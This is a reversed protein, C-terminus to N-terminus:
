VSILQVSMSMRFIIIVSLLSNCHTSSIINNLEGCQNNVFESGKGCGQAIRKWKAESNVLFSQREDRTAVTVQVTNSKIANFIALAAPRLSRLQSLICSRDDSCSLSLMKKVSFHLVIHGTSRKRGNSECTATVEAETESDEDFFGDFNFPDVELPENPDCTKNPQPSDFDIYVSSNM